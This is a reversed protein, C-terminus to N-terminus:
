SDSFKLKLDSEVKKLAANYGAEWETHVDTIIRSHIDSLCEEVLLRGFLELNDGGVKPYHSGGAALALQELEKKM